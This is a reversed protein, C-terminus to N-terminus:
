DFHERRTIYFPIELYLLIRLIVRLIYEEIVIPSVNFKQAVENISFKGYNEKIYRKVKEKLFVSM